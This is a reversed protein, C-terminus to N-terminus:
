YKYKKRSIKLGRCINKAESCAIRLVIAIPPFAWHRRFSETNTEIFFLWFLKGARSTRPKSKHRQRHSPNPTRRTMASISKPISDSLLPQFCRIARTSKWDFLKIIYQIQLSCQCSCFKESVKYWLRRWRAVSYKILHRRYNVRRKLTKIDNVHM